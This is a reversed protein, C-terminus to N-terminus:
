DDGGSNRDGSGPHGHDDSKKPTGTTPKPAPSPASHVPAAPAVSRRPAPTTAMHPTTPSTAVPAPHATRHHPRHPRHHTRTRPALGAGASAPEATLGVQPVSLRSAGISLAAAIVLGLIALAIWAVIARASM